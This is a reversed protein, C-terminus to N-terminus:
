PRRKARMYLFTWFILLLMLPLLSLLKWDGRLHYHPTYHGVFVGILFTTALLNHRQRM